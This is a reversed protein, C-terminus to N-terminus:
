FTLFVLIVTLGVLLMKLSTSLYGTTWTRLGAGIMPFIRVSKVLFRDLASEDVVRWFFGAARTYPRVAMFAYLRDLGFGSQLFGTVWPGFPNESRWGLIDRPGYLFYALVVGGVALLADGNTIFWELSKSAGLEPLAGPLGALRSALWGGGLQVQPLNVLGAVLSLIALPWLTVTMMKPVHRLRTRGGELPKGTFVLFLLRFAYLTTLFAALTGCAWVSRYFISGHNIAALLIRGKSIYGASPPVGGLALAGALFFLFVLPLRQRVQEGMRLIDHEDHLAHIVCGAALFLLSKFFAHTLLHFISGIIDGAGIALFMYGVQSITSYALVKKIDRQVLAACAAYLATVSGVLAIVQLVEPVLSIVPFLRVLLYVGATVMTAAHILASVPTPGAMADPLWVLLPLQASKGTVAWFLLLGILM